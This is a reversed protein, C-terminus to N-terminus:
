HKFFPLKKEARSCSLIKVRARIIECHISPNQTVNGNNSHYSIHFQPKTPEKELLYSLPRLSKPSWQMNRYFISWHIHHTHKYKGTGAVQNSSIFSLCTPDTYTSNGAYAFHQWVTATDWGSGQHYRCQFEHWFDRAISQTAAVQHIRHLEQVAVSICFFLPIASSYLWLVIKLAVDPFMELLLLRQFVLQSRLNSVNIIIVIYIHSWSYFIHNSPPAASSFLIGFLISRVM